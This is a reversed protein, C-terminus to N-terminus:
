DSRNARYRGGVLRGITQRGSVDERVVKTPDDPQVFYAYVRKGSNSRFIRARDTGPKTMIKAVRAVLDSARERPSVTAKVHRDGVKVVFLDSRPTVM